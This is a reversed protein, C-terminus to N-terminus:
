LVLLFFFILWMRSRGGKWLMFLRSSMYQTNGLRCDMHWISDIPRCDLVMGIHIWAVTCLFM